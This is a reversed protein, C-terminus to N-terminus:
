QAPKTACTVLVPAILQADMSLPDFVVYALLMAYSPEPPANTDPSKVPVAVKPLVLRVELPPYSLKTDYTVLSPSMLQATLAPPGNRSRPRSM